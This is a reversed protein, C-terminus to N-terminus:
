IKKLILTEHYILYKIYPSGTTKESAFNELIFDNIKMSTSLYNFDNNKIYLLQLLYSIKYLIDIENKMSNVNFKHEVFNFESYLVRHLEFYKRMYLILNLDLNNISSFDIIINNLRNTLSSLNSKIIEEDKIKKHIRSQIELMNEKLSIKCKDLFSIRTNYFDDLYQVLDISPYSYKNKNKM